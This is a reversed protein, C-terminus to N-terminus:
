QYGELWHFLLSLPSPCIFERDSSAADAATAAHKAHRRALGGADMGADLLGAAAAAAGASRSPHMRAIRVAPSLRVAM